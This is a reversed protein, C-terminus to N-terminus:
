VNQLTQLLSLLQQKLNVYLNKSFSDMCGFNSTTVLRPQLYECQCLYTHSQTQNFFDWRWVEM